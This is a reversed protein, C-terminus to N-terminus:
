EPKRDKVINYEEMKLYINTRSMGLKRAAKAKNWNSEELAQLISQRDFHERRKLSQINAVNLNQFEQPLNDITIINKKCMVIASELTHQLERVNGPWKYYMFVKLVETSICKISKNLKKNFKKIFYDVLLPIDERRKRLPPMTLEVVKLRHFLDERFKGQKVKKRLDQNTAAIIRIDVKVPTSEGLREFEQEQLVRLLRLQMTNSIDGIEDLFITGGDAKQFRGIRDSVAGTFAGKVHGFLESELVNDSLAACNVMVFPIKISKQHYHLAEAVLEKGTGNEGTILVTTKVDALADIFDYVRQMEKSKGILNQLQRREHLDTELNVLKTEDRIVMVCGCFKEQYGFLPYTIVSIVRKPQGQKNCEFRSTEVPLKTNITENLSEICKGSCGDVFSEYRKGRAEVPFGCIEKAAENFELIVLDKDVAIIADKISKFIAELNSRYHILKRENTITKTIQILHSLLKQDDLPKLIFKDAGMNIFTMLYDSDDHASIVIIIQERNIEKIKNVMEIGNMVPMKIDSFVIDYNGHKYKDLGDQGNIATDVTKFFESLLDTIELRVDNDDEVLLVHIDKAYKALDKIITDM